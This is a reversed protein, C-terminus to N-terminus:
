THGEEKRERSVVKEWGAWRGGGGGVEGAEGTGGLNFGKTPSAEEVLGHFVELAHLDGSNDDIAVEAGDAVAAGAGVGVVVVHRRVEQAKAVLVVHEQV